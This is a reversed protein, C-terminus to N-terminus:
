NVNVTKGAETSATTKPGLVQSAITPDILEDLAKAPDAGEKVLKQQTLFPELDALTDHLTADPIGVHHKSDVRSVVQQAVDLDTHALEALIKATQKPHAVVWKRAKDYQKIVLGVYDPYKALFDDSVNLTGFTLFDVNRYLARGDEHLLAQALFPDLASWADVDGRAWATHGDPQNLAVLQVDNQNLGVSLLSHLLFFFADTGRAVAIKKGKLDALTQIPSDKKVVLQIWEPRSYVYITKLGIGNSRALLAASGATSNFDVSGSALFENAKNSGTSQVWTVQIGDKQVAKELWGFKKLVVSPLNYTAWDLRIATPKVPDDAFAASSSFVSTIFLFGLITKKM